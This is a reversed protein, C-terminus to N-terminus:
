YSLIPLVMTWNRSGNQEPQITVAESDPGFRAATPRRAESSQLTSSPLREFDANPPCIEYCLLKPHRKENEACLFKTHRLFGAGYHTGLLAFDLRMLEPLLNEFGDQGF